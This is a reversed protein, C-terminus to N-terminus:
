FKDQKKLLQVMLGDHAIVNSASYSANLRKLGQWRLQTADLIAEDVWKEREPASLKLYVTSHKSWWSESFAKRRSYAVYTGSLDDLKEGANNVFNQLDLAFSAKDMNTTSRYATKLDRKGTPLWNNSPAKDQETAISALTVKVKEVYAPTGKEQAFSPQLLSTVTIAAALLLGLKNRM